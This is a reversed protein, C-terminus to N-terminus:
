AAVKDGTDPKPKEIRPRGLMWDCFRSLRSRTEQDGSRAATSTAGLGILEFLAPLRPLRYASWIRAFCDPWAACEDKTPNWASGLCLRLIAFLTRFLSEGTARYDESPMVEAPRADDGPETSTTPEPIEMRSKGSSTPTVVDKGAAKRAGQGRKKRWLGNAGPEREHIAPDHAVGAADVRATALMEGGAITPTVRPAEGVTNPTIASSAAIAKDTGANADREM